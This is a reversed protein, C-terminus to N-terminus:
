QILIQRINEYPKEQIYSEVDFVMTARNEITYEPWQPLEETNPNGTRAFAIWASSMIDAMKQPGPGEGVMSRQSEINNFVLPVDLAHHARLRGKDAMTEWALLYAYVPAAGKAM